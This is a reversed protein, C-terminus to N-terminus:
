LADKRKSADITMLREHVAKGLKWNDGAGMTIFLDGPHLSEVLYDTADLPNEFYKVATGLAKVALYLREGTTEPDPAERASPYIRHLIVEDSQNFASSFESFLAKTRSATHSMFDVVLRRDPYFEKLGALTTNIATPHHAYDDMIIIGGAEGIRESRRKSGTFSALAEAIRMLSDHELPHGAGTAIFDCLAIAAVADLAVHRGPVKLTFSASSGALSFRAQEHEVTYNVIRFRGSASFGYPILQIDPRLGSILSALEAAGEDDACYVLLGAPPLLLIYEKFATMISDLDPFYDQHDPEISTLVIRNPSFFLFHKRYECTEAIFYRSGLFLTSRDGFGTVASGALITAPLTCARAVIGALATTTTKGHVGCVGSSDMTRSIAGLAEPYTVLSIGLQKARLLEPHTEHNYAASHIVIDITSDINLPDFQNVVIGLESLIRDTYFEDAVDSGSLLAGSYKLIEAIACMGTGKAGVLHVRCGELSDPLKFSNM